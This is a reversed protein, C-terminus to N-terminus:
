GKAGHQGGADSALPWVRGSVFSNSLARTLSTEAGPPSSTHAAWKLCTWIGEQGQHPSTGFFAEALRSGPAPLGDQVWVSM